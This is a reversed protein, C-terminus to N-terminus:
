IQLKERSRRFAFYSMNLLRAAKAANGEAMELSKKFYHRDLSEHLKPLDLGHPTIAPFANGAEEKPNAADQSDAALQSPIDL